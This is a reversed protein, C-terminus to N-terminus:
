KFWKAVFADVHSYYLEPEVYSSTAHIAGKVVLIEKEGAKADYNKQLMDYPVYDDEDGHIFLMPIKAKALSRVSSGDHFSYGNKVRCMFSALDLMPHIPLHFEYKLRYAFQDWVSTYGCDEVAAVVNSPLDLGATMMVTAAGMSVGFLLIRAEPDKEVIFKCWDVMDRCAFTGMDVYKGESWGHGRQGPLLVNWGKDMFHVAYTCMDRPESRYGHIVLAYDHSQNEKQEVFLGKLELADFSKISVVEAYKKLKGYVKAKEQEALVNQPHSNKKVSKMEKAVVFKSSEYCLTGDEPAIAYDVLYIAGGFILLVFLAAVLFLVYKLKLKRKM